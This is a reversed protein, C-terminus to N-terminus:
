VIITSSPPMNEIEPINLGAGFELFDIHVSNGQGEEIAHANPPHCDPYVVDSTFAIPYKETIGTDQYNKTKIKDHNLKKLICIGCTVVVILVIVGVVPVVMLLMKGEPNANDIENKDGGELNDPIPSSKLSSDTCPIRPREHSSDIDPIQARDHSSDIDPISEGGYGAHNDKNDNADDDFDDGCIEETFFFLAIFLLHIRLWM